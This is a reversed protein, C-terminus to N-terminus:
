EDSPDGEDLIESEDLDIQDLDSHEITLRKKARAGLAKVKEAQGILNGRGQSLQGMAKEYTERSREISQGVRQLTDTFTVFKDYLRGAREAIELANNNQLEYRWINHITKLTVLLTTPSVLIINKGYAENFVATDAELVSMFASEIPIFMLVFDLSRIQDLAEYDKANLEKIHARVSAVHRKMAAQRESPDDTASYQEYAVLSVKSDIIIDKGEPLHVIVDPRKNRGDEDKFSSQIEYEHDRRLGSEELVKELIMEGWAGQKQSDGKLARTLNLAEESMQLNLTKLQQIENYLTVRDKSENDYVTEVRTKFEGIQTKLPDLITKITEQNQKTFTESKTEFIRNSLNEFELKLDDRAGKLLEMKETFERKQDTLKSEAEAVSRVLQEIRQDRGELREKLSEREARLEDVRALEATLRAVDRELSLNTGRLEELRHETKDAEQRCLELSQRERALEDRLFSLDAESKKEYKRAIQPFLGKAELLLFLVAGLVAGGVICLIVVPIDM